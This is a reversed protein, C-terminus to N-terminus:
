THSAALSRRIMILQQELLKRNQEEKQPFRLADTLNSATVSVLMHLLAACELANDLQYGAQAMMDQLKQVISECDLKVAFQSFDLQANLQMLKYIRKQEPNRQRSKQWLILDYIGQVAFFLDHNHATLQAFFMKKCSEYISSLVYSFLDSKGSFYQYFSGRSIEAKQIIRNISAEMYSVTTFEEWVADMIRQRKEDPLNFFTQYPM